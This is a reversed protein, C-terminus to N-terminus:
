LPPSTRRNLGAGGGGPRAPWGLYTVGDIEEVGILQQERGLRAGSLFRQRRLQRKQEPTGEAPTHSYFGERVLEQDVM